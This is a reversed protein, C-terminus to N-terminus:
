NQEDESGSQSSNYSSRLIKREERYKTFLQSNFSKKELHSEQDIKVSFTTIWPHELYERAALRDDPDRQLMRKIFDKASVSVYQWEPANFNFNADL